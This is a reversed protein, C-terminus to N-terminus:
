TSLPLPPAPRRPEVASVQRRTDEPKRPEPEEQRPTHLIAVGYGLKALTQGLFCARM